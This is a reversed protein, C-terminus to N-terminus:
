TPNSVLAELILREKNSNDTTAGMSFLDLSKNLSSKNSVAGNLTTTSNLLTSIFSPNM